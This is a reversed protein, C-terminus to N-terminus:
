LQSGFNTESSPLYSGISRSRDSRPRTNEVSPSSVVPLYATISSSLFSKGGYLTENPIRLSASLFIPGSPWCTRSSTWSRRVSSAMRSSFERTDDVLLLRLLDGRGVELFLAEDFLSLASSGPGLPGPEL